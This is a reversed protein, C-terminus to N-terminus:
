KKDNEIKRSVSKTIAHYRRVFLLWPTSHILYFGNRKCLGGARKHVVKELRHGLDGKIRVLDAM